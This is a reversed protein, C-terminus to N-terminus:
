RAPAPSWAPRATRVTDVIVLYRGSWPTPERDPRLVWFTQGARLAEDYGADLIGYRDIFTNLSAPIRICGKSRARGLQPELLDPDTAHMQLRMTSEAHNGWGKIAKQWGFDYIRMGRRGYGRIGLKNRTGEARFDPNELSHDFVGLPTQFHEYQGPKGTAVPSAGIFHFNGESDHWYIMAAQVFVNRDVIVVYQARAEDVVPALEKALLAAYLLQEPEPVTLRRDVQAEFFPALRTGAGPWGVESFLLLLVTAHGFGM